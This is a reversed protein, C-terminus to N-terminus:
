IMKIHVEDMPNIGRAALEDKIDVASNQRSSVIFTREGPYCIFSDCIDTGLERLVADFVTDQGYTKIETIWM